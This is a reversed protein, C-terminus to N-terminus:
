NDDAPHDLMKTNISILENAADIQGRLSAENIAAIVVNVDVDSVGGRGPIASRRGAGQAIRGDRRNLGWVDFTYSVELQATYLAFPNASSNLVPTVVGPTRTPLDPQFQRRGAPLVQGGARVGDATGRAADGDGIAALSQQEALARDPRQAGAIQVAGVVRASHRPGARFRQSRGTPADSSSTRSTLPEKTYRAEEPPAPKLFDPGVACSALLLAAALAAAGANLGRVSRGCM